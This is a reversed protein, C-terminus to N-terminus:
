YQTRAAIDFANGHADRDAWPVRVSAVREAEVTVALGITPARDTWFVDIEVSAPRDAVNMILLAEHPEYPGDVHPPRDGDPFDGTRSGFGAARDRAIRAADPPMCPEKRPPRPSRLAPPGGARDRPGIDPEKGPAFGSM